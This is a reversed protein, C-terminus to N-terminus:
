TGLNNDLYDKLFVQSNFPYHPLVNTNNDNKKLTVKNVSFYFKKIHVLM